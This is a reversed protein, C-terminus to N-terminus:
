RLEWRSGDDGPPGVARVRGLGALWELSAIASRAALAHVIPPVDAYVEAVL